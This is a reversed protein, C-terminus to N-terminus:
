VALQKKLRRRRIKGGTAAREGLRVKIGGELSAV